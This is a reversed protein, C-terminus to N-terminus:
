NSMYNELFKQTPYVFSFDQMYKKSMVVIGGCVEGQAVIPFIAQSVFKQQSFLIVQESQLIQPKAKTLVEFFKVDLHSKFDKCNKNKALINQTDCVFIALDSFNAFSQVCMDAFDLINKIFSRKTIVIKEESLCVDVSSGALLRLKERIEKPIVVRGLDDVRRVASTSKM